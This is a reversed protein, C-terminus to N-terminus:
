QAYLLGVASSARIALTIQSVVFTLKMIVDKATICNNIQHLILVKGVPVLCMESTPRDQIWYVLRRM